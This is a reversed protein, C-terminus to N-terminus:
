KIVDTLAVTKDSVFMEPTKLLTKFQIKPSNPFSDCSNM